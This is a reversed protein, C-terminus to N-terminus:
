HQEVAPSAFTRARVWNGKDNIALFLLHRAMLWLPHMLSRAPHNGRLLNTREREALVIIM